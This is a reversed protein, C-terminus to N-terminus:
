IGALSSIYDGDGTNPYVINVGTFDIDRIQGGNVKSFLGHELGEIRHRKGNHLGSLTGRFDAQIYTKRGLPEVGVASVTRGLTFTGRPDNSMAHILDKFNYYVGNEPAKYKNVYFVSGPKFM